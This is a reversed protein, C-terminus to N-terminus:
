SKLIKHLRKSQEAEMPHKEVLSMLRGQPDSISNILNLPLNSQFFEKGDCVLFMADVTPMLMLARFHERLGSLPMFHPKGDSMLTQEPSVLAARM